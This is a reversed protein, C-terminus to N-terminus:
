LFEGRSRILDIMVSILILVGIVLGESLAPVNMLVMGNKIIGVLVAGLLSGIVTGKGGFVSTGGLMVAAIVELEFGSGTNTQVIGTRAVYILGAFGVLLGTLSYVIIITRALNVGSVRAAEPNNGIAYIARGTPRSSLFYSFLIILVATLWMSLPIGLWKGLGIIRIDPPIGSVWRGGLVQYMLARMMSMMGLTVIIPPVNGYSIIIGNLIGIGFGTAIASLIVVFFSSGAMLLKGAVVSAMGLVSGVSVDIGGTIIVMTMGIASIAVGSLQLLLNSFNSVSMFKETSLSFIVMLVVILGLVTFERRKIVIQYNAIM